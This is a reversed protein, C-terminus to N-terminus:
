QSFIEKTSSTGIEFRYREGGRRLMEKSMDTTGQDLATPHLLVPTTAAKTEDDMELPGNTLKWTDFEM